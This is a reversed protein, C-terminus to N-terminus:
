GRRNGRVPIEATVGYALFLLRSARSAPSGTSAPFRDRLPRRGAGRVPGAPLWRFPTLSPIRVEVDLRPPRGPEGLHHDLVGQFALQIVMQAIGPVIRFAAIAAIGAVPVPGLGHEGLGPWHLDRHQPVPIGSRM